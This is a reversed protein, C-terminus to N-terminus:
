SRCRHGLRSRAAPIPTCSSIVRATSLDGQPRAPAIGGACARQTPRLGRADDLRRADPAGGEDPRAGHVPPRRSRRRRDGRRPQRPHRLRSSPAADVIRAAVAQDLRSSVTSSLTLMAVVALPAIIIGGLITVFRRYSSWGTSGTAGTAGPATTEPEPHVAAPCAQGGSVSRHEDHRRDTCRASCGSRHSPMSSSSPAAAAAPSRASGFPASPAPAPPSPRRSRATSTCSSRAARRGRHSRDRTPLTTRSTRGPRTRPTASRSRSRPNRGAGAPVPRPVAPYQLQQLHGGRPHGSRDDYQREPQLLLPRRLDAEGPQRVDRLQVPRLEHQQGTGPAQPDRGDPRHHDREPPDDYHDLAHELGVARRRHRVRESFIANPLVVLTASRTM